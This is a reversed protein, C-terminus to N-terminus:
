LKAKAPTRSTGAIPLKAFREYFGLADPNAVSGSATAKQGNVIQKVNIECKKGNVTYPIDPVEFIASPVHRPSYRGRIADQIRKTLQPTLSIDSKLKVFLLVREDANAELKQGVCISDSLEPIRDTVAYIEASGFRVGSPNLVGDSRGLMILGGTDKLQKVFDGQCWIAPGFRDFYSARYKALGDVGVFRLPQSPFPQTCVLEGAAGDQATSVPQPSVPDLIDVAM